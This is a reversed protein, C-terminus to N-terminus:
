MIARYIAEQINPRIGLQGLKNNNRTPTVRNSLFIYILDQEPDVWVCIGTFGTHGFTKPSVSRSPYADKRTANDKEPKDFGYGRRSVKSQYATFKKITKKRFLDVDIADLEGKDLMLQYIQALDYANSFLGAHGAVGGFLSAGEDHVDGRILQRRFHNEKETPVLQNVPMHERPKYTTSMMRLPLYFTERVYQDLPMGTVQAIIEGLFIFDNDSYVYKNKETLKSNLIRRRITDQWDNRLYLDEAVRIDFGDVPTTRYLVDLPKGASDITERYFPIFPVLGGQHLLIEKITLDAKDTGKTWELHDQLEDGLELKNEQYLKMIAMTTATIKTVSALDYVSERTVPEKKDYDFYGYAKHHVVKGDKAVLVVAGPMAGKAIGDNAISDIAAEMSNSLGVDVPQAYPFYHNITIGSGFRLRDTVTVPLKGKATLDGDLLEFAAQHTQEDDEYCAVLNKAGSFNKIAYPNGFAFIITNDMQSVSELLRVIEKSLGFNNAPRRSYNHLGIIVTRYQKQLAAKVQSLGSDKHSVFVNTSKFEKKVKKAFANNSNAGIGIYLVNRKGELPLISPNSQSVLTLADRAIKTKIANTSANLDAVLNRTEIPQVNNLGLHYKALLIKKVRANLDAWSLKGGEISSLIKAISGPVDGPLCLMDNGAILSQVSAEGAPYFKTVGQMELADTFTIGEFGLEERLLMTVNRYSLSTAQNATTDISPIYLHAVMMSGVGAKILERFPYLELSDLQEKTKNIIPLDYHSDVAVDGHGPFHKATAMVGVDQMGKMYQVGMLAVKYKDEGFSRDNIVPNDPNNNIDVVPAYNVHIGIRKCQEGVARGFEYVVAADPMAGMMLHRQFSIVSDLRMGLGWEGDICVMLPTKAIQQYFNTLNAQRVPGGQFFCLGGVNYKEILNTVQKVHDPGLNSHARIIMLQAVKQEATLTNFVSDVWQVAQPTKKYFDQASASVCVLTFSIILLKKM